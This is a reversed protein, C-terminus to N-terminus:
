WNQIKLNDYMSLNTGNVNIPNTILCPLDNCENRADFIVLKFLKIRKNLESIIQSIFDKIQNITKHLLATEIKENNEKVSTADLQLHAGLSNVELCVLSGTSDETYIINDRNLLKSCKFDEKMTKSLFRALNVAMIHVVNHVLTNKHFNNREITADDVFFSKLISKDEKLEETYKELIENLKDVTPKQDYEQYEEKTFFIHEENIYKGNKILIVKDKTLYLVIDTNEKTQTYYYKDSIDINNLKTIVTYNNITFENSAQRNLSITQFMLSINGMDLTKLNDESIIIAYPSENKKFTTACEKKVQKLFLNMETTKSLNSEVTEKSVTRFFTRM